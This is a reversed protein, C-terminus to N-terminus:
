PTSSGDLIQTVDGLSFTRTGVMLYTGGNEFKIGTVKGRVLTQAGVANGRADTGTVRFTYDGAAAPQGDDGKGNWSVVQKGAKMDGPKLTAVVKGNSDVVEVKVNANAALSFNLDAKGGQDLHLDNGNAEIQRGIMNAALQNNVSQNILINSSLSANMNQMQELSSFQALQSVFQENDMPKLPDQNQLQSTLLRLFEDKGMARSGTVSSGSTTSAAASTAASTSNLM